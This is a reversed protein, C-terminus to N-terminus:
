KLRHRIKMCEPLKEYLRIMFEFPSNIMRLRVIALFMKITTKTVNLKSGKVDSWKIPVEKIRNKIKKIQYLLDIDFAWETVGLKPLVKRVVERKFVKAGCQTDYYNIGFFVRILSNFGRSAVRRMLPQKPSVRAGKIWRSGITGSYGNIQHVLKSFEEANTSDDADTFGIVKGSALNFGKMVAFGKGGQKFDLHKIQPFQREYRKVVKLTNDRCANLVVIIEFERGYQKTFFSAYDELTKGIRREENYAPIIISLKM